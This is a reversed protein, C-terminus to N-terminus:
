SYVGMEEALEILDDQLLGQIEEEGYKLVFDEDLTEPFHSGDITGFITSVTDIIALQIFDYLKKQDEKPLKVIVSRARSYPDDNQLPKDPDSLSSKYRTLNVNILENLM